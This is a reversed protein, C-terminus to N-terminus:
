VFILILDVKLYKGVVDLSYHCSYIHGGPKWIILEVPYHGETVRVGPRPGVTVAVNIRGKEQALSYFHCM